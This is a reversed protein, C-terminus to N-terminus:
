QVYFINVCNTLTLFKALPTEAILFPNKEEEIEQSTKRKPADIEPDFSPSQELWILKADLSALTKSHALSTVM